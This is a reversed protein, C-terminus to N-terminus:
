QPLLLSEFYDSSIWAVNVAANIANVIKYFLLNTKAEATRPDHHSASTLAITLQRKWNLFIMFQQYWLKVTLNTQNLPIKNMKGRFQIFDSYKLLRLCLCRLPVTNTPTFIKQPGLTWVYRDPFGRIKLPAFMLVSSACNFQHLYKLAGSDVRISGSIKFVSIEKRGKLREDVLLRRKQAVFVCTKSFLSDLTFIKSFKLTHVCSSFPPKRVRNHWVDDGM